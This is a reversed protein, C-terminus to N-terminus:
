TRMRLQKGLQEVCGAYRRLFAEGAVGAVRNWVVRVKALVIPDARAIACLKDPHGMLYEYTSARDEPENTTAYTNVFGTPRAQPVAPDRYAFSEPNLADWEFDLAFTAGFAAHDLLHFLEHHVVEEITFPGGDDHRKGVFNELSIVVRHDDYVAVGSLEDTKGYLRITKCLAVHELKTAELMSQPYQAFAISVGDIMDPDVDATDVRGAVECRMCGPGHDGRCTDITPGADMAIHSRTLTARLGATRSAYTQVDILHNPEHRFDGHPMSAPVNPEPHFDRHPVSTPACATLAIWVWRVVTCSAHAKGLPDGMIEYV